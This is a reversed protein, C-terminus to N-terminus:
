LAYSKKLVVPCSSTVVGVNVLILSKRAIKTSYILYNYFGVQYITTLLYYIKDSMCYNIARFLVSKSM